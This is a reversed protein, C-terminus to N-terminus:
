ADPRTPPHRPPATPPASGAAMARRGPPVIAKEVRKAVEEARIGKAWTWGAEATEELAAALLEPDAGDLIHGRILLEALARERPGQTGAVAFKVLLAFTPLALVAPIWWWWEGYYKSFAAVGFLIMFLLALLVKGSEAAGGVSRKDIEYGFRPLAAALVTQRVDRPQSQIDNELAVLTELESLRLPNTKRVFKAFEMQAPPTARYFSPPRILDTNCGPCRAVLALRRGRSVPVFYLHSVDSIQRAPLALIQRCIPCHDAVWGIPREVRRTGWVILM